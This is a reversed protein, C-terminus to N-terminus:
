DCFAPQQQQSLQQESTSVEWQERYIAEQELRVRSEVARTESSIQDVSWVSRGGRASIVSWQLTHRSNHLTERISDSDSDGSVSLPASDLAASLTVEEELTNYLHIVNIILILCLIYFFNLNYLYVKNQNISLEASQWLWNNLVTWELQPLFLRSFIEM